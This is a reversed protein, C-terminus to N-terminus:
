LHSGIVWSRVARDTSACRAPLSTSGMEKEAKAYSLATTYAHVNFAPQGATPQVEARVRVAEMICQTLAEESAGEPHGGGDIKGVELGPDGCRCSLHELATQPVSSAVVAHPVDRGASLLGRLVARQRRSEAGVFAGLAQWRQGEVV